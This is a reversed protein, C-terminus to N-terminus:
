GKIALAMEAAKMAPLVLMPSNMKKRKMAPALAKM